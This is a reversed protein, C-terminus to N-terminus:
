KQSLFCETYGYSRHSYLGISFTVHDTYAEKSKSVSSEVIEHIQKELVACFIFKEM